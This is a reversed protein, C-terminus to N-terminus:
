GAQERRVEVMAAGPTSGGLGRPRWVWLDSLAARGSRLGRGSRTKGVGSPRHGQMGAQAKGVSKSTNRVAQGQCCLNLM